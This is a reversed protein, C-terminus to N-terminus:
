IATRRSRRVNAIYEALQELGAPAARIVEQTRALPLGTLELANSEFVFRAETMQGVLERLEDAQQAFRDRVTVQRKEIQASEDM